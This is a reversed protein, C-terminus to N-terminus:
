DYIEFIYIEGGGSNNFDYKIHHKKLTKEIFNASPVTCYTSDRGAIYIKTDPLNKIENQFWKEAENINALKNPFISIRLNKNYFMNNYYTTMIYLENPVLIFENEKYKDLLYIISKYTDERINRCSLDYEFNYILKKYNIVNSIKIDVLFILVISILIYFIKKLIDIKLLRYPYDLLSIYFIILIPILYLIQRRAFPYVQMLSATLAFLLVIFFLNREQKKQVYLNIIGLVSLAMLIINYNNYTFVFSFLDNFIYKFSNWSLQLFGVEYHGWYTKMFLYTDKDILYLYLSCLIICFLIIVTKYNFKKEEISKAFIIAPIIFITPFSFLVLLISIISYLICQPFTLQKLSIYKYSLILLICFLVDTEYPRFNASFFIIPINVSFLILGTLVALKNKFINNLLIFFAFCSFISALYSLIRITKFSYGFSNLILKQIIGWLPPIKIGGSIGKFFDLYNIHFFLNALIAEDHSASVNSMFAQTRIFFGFIIILGFLIYFTINLFSIKKTEM